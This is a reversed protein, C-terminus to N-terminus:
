RRRALRLRGGGNISSLSLSWSSRLKAKPFRETVSDDVDVLMLYEVQLRNKKNQKILMNLRDLTRTTSVSTAM